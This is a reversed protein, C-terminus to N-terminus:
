PVLIDTSYGRSEGLCTEVVSTENPITTERSVQTAQIPVDDDDMYLYVRNPLWVLLPTVQAALVLLIFM